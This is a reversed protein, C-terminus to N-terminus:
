EGTSLLAPDLSQNDAFAITELNGGTQLDSSTDATTASLNKECVSSHQTWLCHNPCIGRRQQLLPCILLACLVLDDKPAGLNANRVEM